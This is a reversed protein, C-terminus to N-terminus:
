LDGPKLAGAETGDPQIRQAGFRVIRAAGPARIPTLVGMERRRFDLATLLGLGLLKGNGGELGLLLHKLRPAVTLTFERAKLQELVVGLEPAQPLIPHSVMLGLHRGCMEAYYVRGRERLAEQLFKLLHAAVPTGSGMWTGIFAVEEFKYVYPQANQFYASFRM